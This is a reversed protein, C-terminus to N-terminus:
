TELNNSQKKESIKINTLHKCEEDDVYEPNSTFHISIDFDPNM